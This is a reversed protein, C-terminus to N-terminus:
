PHKRRCHTYNMTGAHCHCPWCPWRSHGARGKTLVEARSVSTRAKDRLGVGIHPNGVCEQEYSSAASSYLGCGEPTELPWGYCGAKKGLIKIKREM